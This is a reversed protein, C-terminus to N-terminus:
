DSGSCQPYAKGFYDELDGKNDTPEVWACYGVSLLSNCLQVANEYYACGVSELGNSHTIYKVVWKV